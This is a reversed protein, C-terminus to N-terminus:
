HKYRLKTIKQRVCKRGSEIDSRHKIKIGYTRQYWIFTASKKEKKNIQESTSQVHVKMMKM